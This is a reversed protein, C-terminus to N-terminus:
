NDPHLFILIITLICYLLIMILIIANISVQDNRVDYKEILVKNEDYYYHYDDTKLVYLTDASLTKLEETIVNPIKTTEDVKTYTCSTIFLILIFLLKKM